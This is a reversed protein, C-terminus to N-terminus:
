AQEITYNKKQNYDQIFQSIAESDLPRSIHYGQIEDCDYSRLLELQQETEVGEAVVTLKLSKALALIAKIIALSDHSSDIDSVFARDIKLCSIPLRKLYSLSSYGTGFDDIVLAIGLAQLQKLISISLESDQMIGTETIELELQSPPLGTKDLISEVRYAFDPDRLQRMSINVAITGNFINQEIWSSAQKCAEHLVWEGLATIDGTEEAIPIFRAPSIEGLREDNWRVLVELATIQNKRTNLKPQFHLRFRNDKIAGRLRDSILERETNEQEISEDYHQVPLQQRQAHHMAHKANILIKEASDGHCPFCSIGITPTLFHERNDIIFPDNFVQYIKESTSKCNDCAEGSGPLLAFDNTGLRAFLSNDDIGQIRGATERVIANSIDTGHIDSIMSLRNLNIHAIVYVRQGENTILENLTSTLYNSNPLSTAEDFNTLHSIHEEIKQKESHLRAVNLERNIAPVLRTLDGKSLYDRAGHLMLRAAKAPHLDGSILLLPISIQKEHLIDMAKRPSFGPLNYDCLILDWELDLANRFATENDVVTSEVTIDNNKLHLLILEADDPSDEVLLLRLVQKGSDQNRDNM